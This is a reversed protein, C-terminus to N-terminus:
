CRIYPWLIRNSAKLVAYLFQKKQGKLLQDGIDARRKKEFQICIGLSANKKEQL